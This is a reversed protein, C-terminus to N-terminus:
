AVVVPTVGSADLIGVLDPDHGAGCPPMSLPALDVRM